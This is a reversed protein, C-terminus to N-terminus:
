KSGYDSRYLGHDAIYAAVGPPVLGDIPEGRSVRGRIESASIPQPVMPVLSIRAGYTGELLALHAALTERSVGPRAAAAFTCLQALEGFSRWNVLDVLSDAGMVFFLQDEPTFLSRFARMTTVTYSTEPSDLELRSVQFRTDTRAALRVMAYRHEAEALQAFPKHPPFGAPIFILRDLAMADCVTRALTLHGNHIPNFSGGFIGIREPAM